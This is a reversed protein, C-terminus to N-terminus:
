LQQILLTNYCANLWENNTWIKGFIAGSNKSDVRGLHRHYHNNSKVSSCTGATNLRVQNLVVFCSVVEEQRNYWAFSVASKNLLLFHLFSSTRSSPEVLSAGGGAGGVAGAVRAASLPVRVRGNLHEGCFRIGISPVPRYIIRRVAATTIPTRAYCFRVM